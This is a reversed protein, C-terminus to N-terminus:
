IPATNRGEGCGIDLLRERPIQRRRRKLAGVGFPSPELTEWGHVGTRYAGHFYRRNAHRASQM